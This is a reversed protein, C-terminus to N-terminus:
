NRRSAHAVINNSGTKLDLEVVHAWDNPYHWNSSKTVLTNIILEAEELTDFQRYFDNWGGSPYFNDGTFVLYITKM